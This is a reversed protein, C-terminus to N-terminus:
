APRRGWCGSACGAPPGSYCAHVLRGAPYPHGVMASTKQDDSYRDESVSLQPRCPHLTARRNENESSREVSQFHSSIRVNRGDQRKHEGISSAQGTRSLRFPVERASPLLPPSPASCLTLHVNSPEHFASPCRDVDWLLPHDTM